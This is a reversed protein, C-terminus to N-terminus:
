AQNVALVLLFLSLLAPHDPGEAIPCTHMGSPSTLGRSRPPECSNPFSLAKQLPCLGGVGLEVRNGSPREATTVISLSGVRFNEKNVPASPAYSHSAPSVLAIPLDVASSPHLLRPSTETHPWNRFLSPGLKNRASGLPRLHGM